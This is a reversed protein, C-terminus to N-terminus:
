RIVRRMKPITLWGKEAWLTINKACTHIQEAIEGPRLGDNIMEQAAVIIPDQKPDYKIIGDNWWRLLTRKHVGVFDAVADLSSGDNLLRQVAVIVEPNRKYNIRPEMKKREATAKGTKGRVAAAKGMVKAYESEVRRRIACFKDKPCDEKFLRFFDSVSKYIKEFESKGVFLHVYIGGDTAEVEYGRGTGMKSVLTTTKITRAGDYAACFVAGDLIGILRKDEATLTRRDYRDTTMM